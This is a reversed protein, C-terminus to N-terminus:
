TGSLCTRVPAIRATEVSMLGGNSHITYPAVTVGVGAVRDLLRQLYTSVRPGVYTNLVTTSFRDFERFEPSIESSLSIYAEPLIRQVVERAAQEHAPDRWAHIFCIAVAEVRAEALRRALAEIEAPDLPSLVAGEAALRESVELRRRRPVLPVPRKVRYDYLHPRTQRGIELIDRFGHTTLMGTRSGKREIVMNTAVTTGHGLFGVETALRGILALLEAIGTAIARSPDDPTSPVKHFAIHGTADDVVALDTFTGGVDVGIRLSSTAAASM